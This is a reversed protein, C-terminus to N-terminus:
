LGLDHMARQIEKEGESRSDSMAYYQRPPPLHPPMARYIRKNSYMPFPAIITLLLHNTPVQHDSAVLLIAMGDLSQLLLLLWLLPIKIRTITMQEEQLLCTTQSLNNINDHM